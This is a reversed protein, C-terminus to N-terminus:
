PPRPFGVPQILFGPLGWCFFRDIKQLPPRPAIKVVGSAVVPAVRKHAILQQLSILVKENHLGVVKPFAQCVSALVYGYGMVGKPSRLGPEWM